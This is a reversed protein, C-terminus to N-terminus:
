LKRKWRRGVMWTEDGSQPGEPCTPFRLLRASAASVGASNKGVNIHSNSLVSLGLSVSSAMVSFSFGVVSYRRMISSRSEVLGRRRKEVGEGRAM